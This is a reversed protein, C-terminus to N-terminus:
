FAQLELDKKELPDCIRLQQSQVNKNDGFM